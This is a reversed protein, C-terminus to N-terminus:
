TNKSCPLHNSDQIMKRTSRRSRQNEEPFSSCYSTMQRMLWPNEISINYYLNDLILGNFRNLFDIEPLKPGPVSEIGPTRSHVQIKDSLNRPFSEIPLDGGIPLHCYSIHFLHIYSIQTRQKQVPSILFIFLISSIRPREPYRYKVLTYCYNFCGSPSVQSSCPPTTVFILFFFFFWFFKHAKCRV